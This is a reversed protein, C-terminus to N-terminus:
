GNGKVEKNIVSNRYIKVKNIDLMSVNKESLRKIKHDYIYGDNYIAIHSFNSRSNEILVIDGNELDDGKFFGLEILRQEITKNDEGTPIGDFNEDRDYDIFLYNYNNWYFLRLM